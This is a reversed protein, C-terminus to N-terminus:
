DKAKLLYSPSVAKYRMQLGHTSSQKGACTRYISSTSIGTMEAAETITRYTAVVNGDMDLVEVERCHRTNRAQVSLSVWRCNSPEYDGDVDIRDITCTGYPADEDYGSDLAWDRFSEYDNRWEECVRIGRGGYNAYAPENKGYCRKNIGKWIGYLRTKSSGHTTNLKRSNERKFCGCSTSNGSTLNSTSVIVTNGCDCACQWKSGGVYKIVTLRGHREGVRDQRPSRLVESHYCGCSVRTGNMLVNNRAITTNGCDCVCRWNGLGVYEKAVLRGFRMDTLDPMKALQKESPHVAIDKSIRM